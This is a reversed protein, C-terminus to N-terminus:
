CQAHAQSFTKTTPGVNAKTHHRMFTSENYEEYRLPTNSLSAKPQKLEQSAESADTTCDQSRLAESGRVEEDCGLLVGGCVSMLAFYMTMDEGASSGVASSVPVVGEVALRVGTWCGSM